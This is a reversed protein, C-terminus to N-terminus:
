GEMAELRQMGLPTLLFARGKAKAGEKPARTQEARILQHEILNKVAAGYCWLGHREVHVAKM